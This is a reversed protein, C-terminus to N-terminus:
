PGDMLPHAHPPYMAHDERICDLAKHPREVRGPRAPACELANTCLFLASRRIPDHRALGEGNRGELWPRSKCVAEGLFDGLRFGEALAQQPRIIQFLRCGAPLLLRARAGKRRKTGPETDPGVSVPQWSLPTPPILPTWNFVTTQLTPLIRMCHLCVYDVPSTQVPTSSVRASEHRWRRWFSVFRSIVARFSAGALGQPPLIAVHSNSLLKRTLSRFGRQSSSGAM